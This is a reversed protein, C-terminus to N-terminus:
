SGERAIRAQKTLWARLERREDWREWNPSGPQGHARHPEPEDPLMSDRLADIEAAIADRPTGPEHMGAHEMVRWLPMPEATAPSLVDETLVPLSSAYEPLVPPVDDCEPEPNLMGGVLSAPDLADDPLLAATWTM